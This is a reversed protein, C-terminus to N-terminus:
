MPLSLRDLMCPINQQLTFPINIPTHLSQSPHRTPLDDRIRTAAHKPFHKVLLNEAPHSCIPNYRNGNNRNQHQKDKSNDVALEFLAVARRANRPAELYEKNIKYSYNRSILHM